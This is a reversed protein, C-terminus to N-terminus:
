INELEMDSFFSEFVINIFYTCKFLEEKIIDKTDIFDEQKFNNEVYSFFERILDDDKPFQGKMNKFIKLFNELMKDEIKIPKEECLSLELTRELSLKNLEKFDYKRFFKLFFVLICYFDKKKSGDLNEHDKRNKVRYYCQIFFSWSFPYYENNKLIIGETTKPYIVM